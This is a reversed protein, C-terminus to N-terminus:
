FDEGGSDSDGGDDTRNGPKSKYNNIKWSLGLQFIPAERNFYMYSYFGEGESTFEHKASKFLDRISFTTTLQRNFFDKKLALNTMFFGTSSGQATVSPGFYRGNTQLRFEKPLVFVLNVNANWNTSRTDVQEDDVQGELRYDYVTGSIM